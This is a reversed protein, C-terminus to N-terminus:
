ENNLKRFLSDILEEQEVLHRKLLGTATSAASKRGSYFLKKNKFSNKVLIDSILPSVFFWAGM